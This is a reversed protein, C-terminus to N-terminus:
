LATHLLPSCPVPCLPILLMMLHEAAVNNDVIVYAQWCCLGGAYRMYNIYVAQIPKHNRLAPEMKLQVGQVSISILYNHHPPHFPTMHCVAPALLLDKFM